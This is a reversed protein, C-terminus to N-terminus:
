GAFYCFDCLNAQPSECVSSEMYILQELKMQASSLKRRLLLLLTWTVDLHTLWQQWVVFSETVQWARVKCEKLKEKWIM